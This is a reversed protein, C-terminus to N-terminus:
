LVGESWMRDTVAYQLQNAEAEGDGDWKDTEWQKIHVFEHVITAVFDRLGQKDSVRIMYTKDDTQECDGWCDLDEYIDIKFNITVDESIYFFNRCWNIVTRALKVTNM